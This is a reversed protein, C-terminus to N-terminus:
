GLLGSPEKTWAAPLPRFEQSSNYGSKEQNLNTGLRVSKTQSWLSIQMRVSLTWEDNIEDQETHAQKLM